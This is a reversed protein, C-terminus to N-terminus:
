SKSLHYVDELVFEKDFRTEFYSRLEGSELQFQWLEKAELVAAIEMSQNSFPKYEFYAMETKCLIEIIEIETKTLASRWRQNTDTDTHVSGNDYSSNREWTKGSADKYKEPDVMKKDFPVNIFNCIDQFQWEPRSVLDEYKFQKFEPSISLDAAFSTSLRAIKRWQLILFILPYSRDRTFKSAIVARPDRIVNLCRWAKNRRLLMPIFETVWVQKLGISSPTAKKKLALSSIYDFVEGYSRALKPFKQYGFVERCYIGVDRSISDQLIERYAESVPLDFFDDNLIHSLLHKGNDDGQYDDLPGLPFEFKVGVERAIESRFCNFFKGLPDSLFSVHENADLAKACFTTGSRFMGTLLVRTTM